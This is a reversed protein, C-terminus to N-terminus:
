SAAEVVADFSETKASLIQYHALAAEGAEQLGTVGAEERDAESELRAAEALDISTRQPNASTALAQAARLRKLAVQQQARLADMVAASGAHEYARVDCAYCAVYTRYCDASEAYINAGRKIAKFLRTVHEIFRTYEIIASTHGTIEELTYPQFDRPDTYLAVTDDYDKRANADHRSARDLRDAANNIEHRHNSLRTYYAVTASATESLDLAATFADVEPPVGENDGATFFSKISNLFSM